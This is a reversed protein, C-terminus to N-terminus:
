GCLKYRAILMGKWRAEPALYLRKREASHEYFSRLGMCGIQADNLFAMYV